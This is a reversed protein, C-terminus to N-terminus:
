FVEISVQVAASSNLYLYVGVNASTSQLDYINSVGNIRTIKWGTLTRNLTHPIVNVGQSLQINNLVISDLQVRSTISSFISSLNTILSNLVRVVASISNTAAESVQSVAFQPFSMLRWDWVLGWRHGM